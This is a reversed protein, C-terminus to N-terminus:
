NKGHPYPTKLIDAVPVDWSVTADGIKRVIAESCDFGLADENDRYHESWARPM